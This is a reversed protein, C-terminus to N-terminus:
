SSASRLKGAGDARAAWWRNSCSLSVRLIDRGGFRAPGQLPAVLLISQGLATACTAGSRARSSNACITSRDGASLVIWASRLVLQITQISLKDQAVTALVKPTSTTSRSRM